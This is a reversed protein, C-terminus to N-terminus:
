FDLQESAELNLLNDSLTVPLAPKPCFFPFHSIPDFDDTPM